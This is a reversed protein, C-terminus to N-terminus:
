SSRFGYSARQKQSSILHCGVLRCLQFALAMCSAILQGGLNLFIVEETITMKNKDDWLTTASYSSYAIFSGNLSVRSLRPHTNIEWFM